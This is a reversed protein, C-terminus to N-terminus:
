ARVLLGAAPALRIALLRRRRRCARSGLLLLLLLLLLLARPSGPSLNVSGVCVQIRNKAAAISSSCSPLLIAAVLLLPGAAALLLILLPIGVHGVAIGTVAGIVHRCRRRHGRHM